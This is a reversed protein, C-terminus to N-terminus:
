QMYVKHMHGLFIWIIYISPTVDFLYFFTGFTIEVEVDHSIAKTTVADLSTLSLEMLLLLRNSYVIADNKLIIM